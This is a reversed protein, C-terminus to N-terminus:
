WVSAPSSGGTRGTLVGHRRPERSGSCSMPIRPTSASRSRRRGTTILNIWLLQPPSCRCPVARAEGLHPRARGAFTVGAFM